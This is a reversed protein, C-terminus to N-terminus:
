YKNPIAEIKWTWANIVNKKQQSDLQFNKGKNILVNKVLIYYENLREIALFFVYKKERPIPRQLFIM